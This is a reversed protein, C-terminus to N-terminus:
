IIIQIFDLMFRIIGPFYATKVSFAPSFEVLEGM